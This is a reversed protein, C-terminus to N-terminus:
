RGVGKLNEMSGNSLNDIAVDQHGDKVLRRCIHGGIFGAGGAVLAKM